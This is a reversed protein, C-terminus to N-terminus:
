HPIDKPGLHHHRRHIGAALIRLPPAIQAEAVRPAGVEVGVYPAEAVVVAGMRDRAVAVVMVPDAAAATAVVVQAEAAAVVVAAAESQEMALLHLAQQEIRCSFM